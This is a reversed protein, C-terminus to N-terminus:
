FDVEGPREITGDPKILGQEKAIRELRLTEESAGKSNTRPEGSEGGEENSYRGELVKAM